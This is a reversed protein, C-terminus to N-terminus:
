PPKADKSKSILNICSQFVVCITGNVAAVYPLLNLLHRDHFKQAALM